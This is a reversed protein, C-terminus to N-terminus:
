FNKLLLFGVHWKLATLELSHMLSKASGNLVKIYGVKSTLNKSQPFYEVCV